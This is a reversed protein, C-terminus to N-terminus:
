KLLVMKKVQSFEVAQIQYFYIGSPLTSADFTVEHSGASMETDLLSQVKQGLTNYVNITINGPKSLTFSIKTAPNFPNPYNQALNFKHTTHTTKGALSTTFGSYEYAILGNDGAALYVTGDPGVKVKEAYGNIHALNTFSNGDFSYAHLGNDGDAVFITGEPGVAVGKAYGGDRDINGIRGLSDGDFIYAQLGNDSNAVYVMGDSSVAIDEIPSELNIFTINAICQPGTTFFPM